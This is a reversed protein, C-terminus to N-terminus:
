NRLEVCEVAGVFQCGSVRQMSWFYAFFAGEGGGCLNWRRVCLLSLSLSLITLHANLAENERNLPVGDCCIISYVQTLAQAGQEVLPENPLTTAVECFSV